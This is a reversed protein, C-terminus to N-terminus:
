TIAGCRSSKPPILPWEAGGAQVERVDLAQGAALPASTNTALLRGGTILKVLRWGEVPGRRRRWQGAM